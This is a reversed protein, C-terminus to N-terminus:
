KTNKKLEQEIEKTIEEQIKTSTKIADANMEEKKKIIAEDKKKTVEAMEQDYHAKIEGKKDEIIKQKENELEQKANNFIASINSSLNTLLSNKEDNLAKDIDAKYTFSVIQNYLYGALDPKAAFVSTTGLGLVFTTALVIKPWKKTTTRKKSSFKEKRSIEM